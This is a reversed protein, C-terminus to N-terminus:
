HLLNCGQIHKVLVRHRCLRGLIHRCRRRGPRLEGKPTVCCLSGKGSHRKPRTRSSADDVHHHDINGSEEACEEEHHQDCGGSCHCTTRRPPKLLSHRPKRKSCKQECQDAAHKKM